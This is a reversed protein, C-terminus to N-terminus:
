RRGAAAVAKESQGAPPTGAAGGEVLAACRFHFLKVPLKQVMGAVGVEVLAACSANSALYSVRTRSVPAAHIALIPQNQYL